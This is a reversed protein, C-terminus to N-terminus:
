GFHVSRILRSMEFIQEDSLVFKLVNDYAYAVLQEMVSCLNQIGQNM